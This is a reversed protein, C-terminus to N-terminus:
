LEILLLASCTKTLALLAPQTLQQFAKVEDFFGVWAAGAQETNPKEFGYRSPATQKACLKLWSLLNSPSSTKSTGLFALSVSFTGRASSSISKGLGWSKLFQLWGSIYKGLIRISFVSSILSLQCQPLPFVSRRSASVLCSWGAIPYGLKDALEECCCYSPYRLLAHVPVLVAVTMLTLSVM